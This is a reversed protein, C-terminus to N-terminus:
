PVEWAKRIEELSGVSKIESNLLIGKECVEELEDFDHGAMLITKDRFNKKIHSLVSNRGELDLGSTLEDLLLIEPKALMARAISLRQEMGRSFTSVRRNRQEYLGVLELMENMKKTDYDLGYLKSYFQLNELATLDRYLLSSHSVFGIKRRLEVKKWPKAGFIKVEGASPKLQGALIKLLTTKGAGNPGLIAVKEGKEMELSVNRLAVRRGFRKWLNEIEIVTTKTMRMM